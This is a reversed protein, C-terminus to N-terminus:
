ALSAEHNAEWVSEVKRMEEQLSYWEKETIETGGVSKYEDVDKQTEAEYTCGGINFYRM